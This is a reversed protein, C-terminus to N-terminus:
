QLELTRHDVFLHAHSSHVSYLTNFMHTAIQYTHTLTVNDRIQETALRCKSKVYSNRSFASPEIHPSVYNGMIVQIHM